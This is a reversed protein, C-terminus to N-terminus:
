LYCYCGLCVATRSVLGGGYGQRGMTWHRRLTGSVLGQPGTSGKVERISMQAVHLLCESSTGSQPWQLQLRQSGKRPSAIGKGGWGM